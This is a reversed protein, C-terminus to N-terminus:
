FNDTYFKLANQMVITEFPLEKPKPLEDTTQQKNGNRIDELTTEYANDRTTRIKAITEAL